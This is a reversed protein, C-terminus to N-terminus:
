SSHGSKHNGDPSRAPCGYMVDVDFRVFGLSEYLRVAGRNAEDVYLMVQSLGASRLHRLGALTLVRGLGAGQDDPDVGLVYVEGTTADHIKTWHFGALAGGREALFFGAPDFWAERERRVLDDITLSGQEPHDAFAKRNLEVWAPEDQGVVFTRLRVGDPVVPEPFPDALPRRMKWLARVREFGLSRALAAAAPSEGHAWLRLPGNAADVMAQALCRGHGRGRHEPHVVLEGSPEAGPELHGYGALAPGSGARTSESAYLLVSRARGDGGHRLHLMSQDSLPRVGDAKTAADILASAAAIEDASLRERVVM